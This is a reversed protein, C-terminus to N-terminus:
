ERIDNTSLLQNNDNIAYVILRMTSMTNQVQRVAKTVNARSSSAELLPVISQHLVKLHFNSQRNVQETFEQVTAEDAADLTIFAIQNEDLRHVTIELRSSRGDVAGDRDTAYVILDIINSARLSDKTPKISGTEPHVNFHENEAVSYRIKANLDEDADTAVVDILGSLMLRNALSPEPFGLWVKNGSATEPYIFIPDNDNIDDVIISVITIDPAYNITETNVLSRKVMSRRNAQDAAEDNDLCNLKLVLKFQPVDMNQFLKENERDFSRSALWNTEPDIYFYPEQQGDEIPHESILEYTCSESLQTSFITAHPREEELHKVFLVQDVAVQKDGETCEFQNLVDLLVNATARKGAATNTAHM